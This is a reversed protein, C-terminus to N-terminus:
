SRVNAFQGVGHPANPCQRGYRLSSCVDTQEMARGGIVRLPGSCICCSHCASLRSASIGSMPRQQEIPASPPLSRTRIGGTLLCGCRAVSACFSRKRSGCAANLAAAWEAEAYATWRLLDEYNARQCVIQVRPRDTLAEEGGRAVM